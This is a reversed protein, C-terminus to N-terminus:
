ACATMTTAKGLARPWNWSSKRTRMASRWSWPNNKIVLFLLLEFDKADVMRLPGSCLAICSPQGRAEPHVRSIQCCLRIRPAGGM